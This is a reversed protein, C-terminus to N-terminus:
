RKKSTPLCQRFALLPHRLLGTKPMMLVSYVVILAPVIIALVAALIQVALFSAGIVIAITFLDM